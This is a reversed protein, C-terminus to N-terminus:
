GKAAFGAALDSTGFMKALGSMGLRHRLGISPCIGAIRRRNLRGCQRTGM